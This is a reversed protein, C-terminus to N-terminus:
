PSLAWQRWSGWDKESVLVKVRLLRLQASSGALLQSIEQYKWDLWWQVAKLLLTGNKQHGVESLKCMQEM